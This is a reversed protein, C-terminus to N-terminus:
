QIRRGPACSVRVWESGESGSLGLIRMRDRRSGLFPDDDVSVDAFDGERFTGFKPDADLKSEFSWVESPAQGLALNTQAYADLTSQAEVDGHSTDIRELLPFGADLLRSSSQRSILPTGSSRGATAWSWSALGSADAEYSVDRVPADPASLDWSQVQPSSLLPASETGTEMLWSVQTGELRPTFRVEPGNEVGRLDEIADALNKFEPGEFVRGHSGSRDSEYTIPLSGGVWSQAQQVLRKAITGLDYGAFVSRVAPAPLTGGERDPDPVFWSSYALTQAVVPLVHRHDFLSEVGRAVLKVLGAERDYRVSWIPGAEVVFGDHEFGLSAKAATAANALDYGSTEVVGVPVTCELSGPGGVQVDWRGSVVEVPVVQSGTRTDFLFWM